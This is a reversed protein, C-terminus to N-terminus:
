LLVLSALVKKADLENCEKWKNSTTKYVLENFQTGTLGKDKALKVVEAHADSAAAPAVTPEKKAFTAKNGSAANGDDDESDNVCFVAKLQYRRIYTVASGMQQPTDYRPIPCAITMSSEDKAVVTTLSDGDIFQMVALGAALWGPSLASIVTDLDAYAHSYGGGGKLEVKVKSDATLSHFHSRAEAMAKFLPGRPGDFLVASSPLPAPPFTVPMPNGIANDQDNM